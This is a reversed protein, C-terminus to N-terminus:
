HWSNNPSGLDTFDKYRMHLEHAPHRPNGHMSVSFFAHFHFKTFLMVAIANGICKIARAACAKITRVINREMAKKDLM